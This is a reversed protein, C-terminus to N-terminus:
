KNEPYAYSKYVDEGSTCRTFLNRIETTAVKVEKPIKRGNNFHYNESYALQGDTFMSDISVRLFSDPDTYELIIETGTIAIGWQGNHFMKLTGITKFDIKPFSESHIMKIIEHYFDKDNTRRTVMMCNEDKVKEDVAKELETSAEDAMVGLSKRKGFLM